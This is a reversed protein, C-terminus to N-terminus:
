VGDATTDLGGNAYLGTIPPSAMRWRRVDPGCRRVRRPERRATALLSVVARLTDESSRPSDVRAERRHDGNAMTRGNAMTNNKQGM